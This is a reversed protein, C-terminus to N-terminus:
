SVNRKNNYKLGSDIELSMTGRLTVYGLYNVHRPFRPPTWFVIQLHFSQSSKRLTDTWKNCSRPVAPLRYQSLRRKPRTNYQGLMSNATEQENRVAIWFFRCMSSSAQRINGRPILSVMNITGNLVADLVGHPPEDYCTMDFLNLHSLGGQVNERCHYAAPEISQM